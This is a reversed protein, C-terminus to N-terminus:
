QPGTYEQVPDGSRVWATYIMDRLEIAGAALREDLLRRREGANRRWYLRGGERVSVDEGGAFELAASVALYDAWEDALVKLSRPRLWRLSM